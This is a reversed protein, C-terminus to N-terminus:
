PQKSCGFVRGLFGRLGRPRGRGRPPLRHDESRWPAPDDPLRLEAIGRVDSEVPEGDAEQMCVFARVLRVESPRVVNRRSVDALGDDAM